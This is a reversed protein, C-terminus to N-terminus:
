RNWVPKGDLLLDPGLRHVRLSEVRIADEMRAIGLGGVASPAERGGALKPAVFWLLRDALEAALFAAHTEGGGEVLLSVVERRGLEELLSKLEIRGDTDTEWRLIEIGCSQLIRAREGDAHTSTVVLTPFVNATAALQSSPSLRLNSDLVIRLPQRPAGGSKRSLRATLLPDDILATGAGVLVAGVRARLQHAWSRAKEGTIWKSDGTRTAIKGDLTQAAKLYVFPRRTRQFHFYAENVQEAEEALLGVEVAVGAERLRRNGQGAVRPNPDEQAAVVRAVGAAILADACPPTRGFHSCPELTVYATAGRAANGAERLAFVEAHPEGALPHYGEGM